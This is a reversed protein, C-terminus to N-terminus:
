KWSDKQESAEKLNIRIVASQDAREASKRSDPINQEDGNDARESHEAIRNIKYINM